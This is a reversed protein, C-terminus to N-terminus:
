CTRIMQEGALCRQAEILRELVFVDAQQGRGGDL